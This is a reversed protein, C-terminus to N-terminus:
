KNGIIDEIIKLHHRTHLELFRKAQRKNLQNFYPHKFNANDDLAAFSELKLQVVRLQENIDETEITDPPLTHRPSKAIGRPLYGFTYCFIRSANFNSKYVKPDSTALANCISNIVKLSHDLHWAVPVKSVKPNFSDRNAIHLQLEQLYPKLFDTYNFSDRKYM